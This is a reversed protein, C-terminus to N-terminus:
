KGEPTNYVNQIRKKVEQLIIAATQQKKYQATHIAFINDDKKAMECYGDYVAQHFSSGALEMRDSTDVGGKRDFSVEPAVLLMITMDPELGQVAAKNLSSILETDIGRAYGQYALTSHTFRDCIVIHGQELAPKIVQHVHQARAAEYLMLEAMDCLESNKASLVMNRIEESLRCGGPERTVTVPYGLENLSRTLYKLQTSKGSGDTGELTIFFGKM